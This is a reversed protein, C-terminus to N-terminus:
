LDEKALVELVKEILVKSSFPKELLNTKEDILGDHSIINKSYGSIFLVKLNPIKAKLINYLEKGNMEPMIIDTILLSSDLISELNELVDKPHSFSKIEFGGKLLTTSLIKLILPDDEVVIVKKRILENKMSSDIEKTSPIINEEEQEVSPLYVRITTGVNKESYVNIFGGNQKIIGFVVPMGLGTGQKKTTFFPEFIRSVEEYSMGCGNDSITLLVYNGVRAYIHTSVYDQDVYVNKTEIVIKGNSKFGIADKANALINVIIQELQLPDIKLNKLNKDPYFEIEINESILRKYINLNKSIYKNLNLILPKYIQQRAFGLLSKTIKSAKEISTELEFISDLLKDNEKAESKINELSSIMVTLLNNLDHAIGGALNEIAEFKQFQAIQELLKMKEMNAKILDTIDYLLHIAGQLEGKDNYLPSLVCDFFKDEFTMTRTVRKEKQILEIFPCESPSNGKHIVEFCKKGVIDDENCKLFSFLANNAILVNQEKDLVFFPEKLSNFLMELFSGKEKLEKELKVRDTIDTLSIIRENYEDIKSIHGKFYKKDKSLLVFNSENYDKLVKELKEKENEDILDLIMKSKTTDGEDAFHEEFSRNALIVNNSKDLIAISTDVNEFLTEYKKRSEDLLEDTLIEDTIDTFSTDFFIPRGLNDKVVCSSGKIYIKKGDKRKLQIIKDKVSGKELIEKILKEGDEKNFYFDKTNLNEINEDKIKLTELFANNALLIKGDLTSRFLPNPANLYLEELEKLAKEEIKLYHSLLYLLFLNSLLVFGIIAKFIFFNILTILLFNTIIVILVLFILIIRMRKLTKLM